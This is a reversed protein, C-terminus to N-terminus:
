TALWNFNRFTFKQIVVWYDLKMMSTETSMFIKLKFMHTLDYQRNYACLRNQFMINTYQFWILSQSTMGLTSTLSDENVPLEYTVRASSSGVQIHLITHTCYCYILLLSCALSLCPILEHLWRNNSQFMYNYAFQSTLTKETITVM